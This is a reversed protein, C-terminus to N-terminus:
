ILGFKHRTGLMQDHDKIVKRSGPHYSGGGFLGVSYGSEVVNIRFPLFLTLILLVGIIVYWFTYNSLSSKNQQM